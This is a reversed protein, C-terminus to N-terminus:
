KLSDKIFGLQQVIVILTAEIDQMIDCLDNIQGQLEDMRDPETLDIEKM